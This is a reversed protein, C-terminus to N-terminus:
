DFEIVRLLEKEEMGQAYRNIFGTICNNFLEQFDCEEMEEFSISKPWYQINPEESVLKIIPDKLNQPIPLKNLLAIVKKAIPSLGQIVVAEYHGGIMQLHKRWTKKNDFGDQIDFTVNVLAMFRKHNRYNRNKQYVVKAVEGHPIKKFLEEAEM